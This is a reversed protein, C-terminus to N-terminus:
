GRIGPPPVNPPPLNVLWSTVGLFVGRQHRQYQWMARLNNRDNEQLCSPQIKQTMHAAYHQSLGSIMSILSM